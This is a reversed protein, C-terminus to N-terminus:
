NEGGGGANPLDIWGADADAQDAIEVFVAGGGRLLVAERLQDTSQLLPQPYRGALNPQEVLRATGGADPPPKGGGNKAVLDKRSRRIDCCDDVPPTQLTPCLLLKKSNAPLDEIRGLDAM